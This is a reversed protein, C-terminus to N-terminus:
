QSQAAYFPGCNRSSRVVTLRFHALYNNFIVVRHFCLNCYYLYQSFLVAHRGATLLWVPENRKIFFWSCLEQDGTEWYIIFSKCTVLWMCCMVSWMYCTVHLMYCRNHLGTRGGGKKGVLSWSIVLLLSSISVYNFKGLFHIPIYHACMLYCLM